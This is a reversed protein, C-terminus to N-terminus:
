KLLSLKKTMKFGNAELQYFYVGSSFGTGDFTSIYTGAGQIGNFLTSVLEGLTNYVKLSVHGQFPISYKIETSPNFPNPYNQNLEYEVPVVGKVTKISTPTGNELWSSINEWEKDQQAEWAAMQEPFWNLDGLPFGGMAATILNANNYAMNEPLPWTQYLGANPLYSWDIDANNNWKYEVFIKITDLNTAPIIFDPDEDYITAWDVNMTKFVKNGNEDTSDIFNIENEGLMPSPNYIEESLRQQIKSKAWPATSYWDLMWDQFVYCNNGIFIKRDLDTFDVSFGFSDVETIGNILGGGPPNCLGSQFADYDQDDDCVDVARYGLMSPNVFISNTISANRIWGASQFVWELSNLLTCHNIHVNDGYENGEQMVIRGLNTFTCNEFLLKDYHWGSSQFPFSIARGYYRFHIDSNNRWYCNQFNGEFHDAKVCIAGSAEAGIGAYDFLCGDFYGQEPDNAEDQNEFTISGSVQNGLIDAFRVWINKMVIDGYSQIIYARDIGEETWVIQPPASEQDKGAKPAVIEINQGHDLYISRSLVYLEYPELKFVTNNINGNTLVTEIADNLTGYTGGTGYYGQVYVTDKQAFSASSLCFMIFLFLSVQKM